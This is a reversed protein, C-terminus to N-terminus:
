PCRGSDPRSRIARSPVATPTPTPTPMPSATPTPVLVLNSPVPTPASSPLTPTPATSAAGPQATAGPRLIVAAVALALVAAIAALGSILGRFPPRGGGASGTAGPAESPIANVRAVLRDPAPEGAMRELTAKVERDFPDDSSM